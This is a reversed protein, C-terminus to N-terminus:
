SAHWRGQLGAPSRQHSRVRLRLRREVPRRLAGSQRVAERGARGSQLPRPRADDPKNGYAGWYRKMKGTAADLVAVRENFYGDAIYAENAKPDVFIKAVRGFNDPDNSGRAFTPNGQKNKGSQRANPKGDQALFKGDRTFKVIHSDGPGNGGIWVNGAHDVFIGHNSGALRLGTGPGGWQRVLNGQPM